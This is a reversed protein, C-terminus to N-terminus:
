LLGQRRLNRRRVSFGLAVLGMGLMAWTSPEPTPQVDVNVGWSVLISQDGPNLDAVFLTWQGTPDAGTFNGLGDDIPDAVTVLAPDASRGDAAWDGLLQGSSNFLPNSQQYTHIDNGTSSLTVDFGSDGYGVSNGVDLGVRNLLVASQGSPSLLYAYLDGNWGGTIDLNVSVDAISAGPDGLDISSVLGNPDNDPIALGVSVDNTLQARGISVTFALTVAVVAATKLHKM